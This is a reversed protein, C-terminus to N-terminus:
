AMRLARGPTANTRQGSHLVLEGNVIVHDMGVALQKGDEFTAHDDIRRPEFVIVDAAMRERLLGRDKLGYRRAAHASLKQVCEELSWVGERVYHGLYRAYCGCGRPHPFRGTFIGDSGGMMAPHRMLARIDADTRRKHHPSICGVTMASAILIECVFTGIDKGADKAARELTEGEYKQYDDAAVYTLKVPELPLRPAAFYENLNERTQPDRLRALTADIGGEQVWAPLAIMGLITSGALYCYLDYTVDIGKSRMEDIRPLVQDAICNFHSIHVACDADRGITEVEDMAALVGEPTYSRMHTVYVGGFPAIERCLATLETTDAYRSPIYDLGSSLGVSGEEMSRRVIAEMQAMESSTAQRTELMLVEMRVNGNPTLCAVNLACRREFHGLYEAMSLRNRDPLRGKAFAWGGSFGATYRCMYDLTARSAPAMAVGDQGVIYTTVGQRIAPEHLPDHLLAADGHVHTDIFGPAVVKDTADIKHRADAASLNGIATIRDGNIGVDGYFWPNGTGDIIRGGHILLDFM